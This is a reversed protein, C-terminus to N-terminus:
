HIPACDVYTLDLEIHYRPGRSRSAGLEVGHPATPLTAPRGVPGRCAYISSVHRAGIQARVIAVHPYLRVSAPAASSDGPPWRAREGSCSQAHGARRACRACRSCTPGGVGTRSSTAAKIFCCGPTGPPWASRTRSPRPPTKVAARAAGRGVERTRRLIPVIRPWISRRRTRQPTAPRRTSCPASITSPQRARPGRIV